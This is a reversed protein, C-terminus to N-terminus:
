RERMAPVMIILRCWVHTHMHMRMAIDISIDAHM